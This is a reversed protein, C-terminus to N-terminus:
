DPGNDVAIIGHQKRSRSGSNNGNDDKKGETIIASNRRQMDAHLDNVQFAITKLNANITEVSKVFTEAMNKLQDPTLGIMKSFMMEIGTAM